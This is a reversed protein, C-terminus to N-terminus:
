NRNNYNNNDNNNTIRIVGYIYLQLRYNNHGHSGLSSTTGDGGGAEAPEAGRAPTRLPPDRGRDRGRHREAPSQWRFVSGISVPSRPILCIIGIFVM